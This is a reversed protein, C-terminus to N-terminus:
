IVVDTAVTSDTKQKFDITEYIETRAEVIYRMQKEFLETHIPNDAMKKLAVQVEDLTAFECEWVFTNVPEDESLLQYRKGPVLERSRDELNKFEAELELFAQAASSHYRQVLRLIYSMGLDEPTTKDAM